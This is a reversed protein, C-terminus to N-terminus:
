SEKQIGLFVKEIQDVMHEFSFDKLELVHQETLHKALTTSSLIKTIGEEWADHDNYPIALGNFGDDVLEINGGVKSVLVPLKRSMAELLAHSLGEYGSNLIFLDSAAYYLKVQERPVQGLIIVSDTLKEQSVRGILRDHETGGGVIVLKLDPFKKLLTPWIDILMDLGKWPVLRCVTLAITGSLGLMKQIDKKSGLKESREQFAFSNYIVKILSATKGWGKVIKKLYLSPTIVLRASSVVKTQIKQLLGIKGAEQRGQFDDVSVTLGKQVWAQEWAYDGVIKVLYQKRLIKSAIMAPLGANVPGMAYIVDAKRARKILSLTYLLYKHLLNYRNHIRTVPFPYKKAPKETDQYCVVQVNHGRRTFERAIQSSHTAPGGIDPPFIDAAIVLNLKQM